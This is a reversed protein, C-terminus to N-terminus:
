LALRGTKRMRMPPVASESDQPCRLEACKLRGRPHCASRSSFVRDSNTFFRELSGRTRVPENKLGPKLRYRVAHIRRTPSASFSSLAAREGHTVRRRPQSTACPPGLNTEQKLGPNLIGHSHRKRKLNERAPSPRLKASNELREFSFCVPRRM